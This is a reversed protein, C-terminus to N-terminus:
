IREWKQFTFDYNHREDKYHEEKWTMKWENEDIEPFYVDADITAHVRTIYLVNLMDMSQKFIEGGGIIFIEKTEEKRARHLADKLEQYHLVGEPLQLDEKRSLVINLREKLPRGNLSEFTKRGMIVPCGLTTKKFFKLDDPLRWPLDNDVGIANNESMAVVASLRM